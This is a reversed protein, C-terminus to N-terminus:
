KYSQQKIVNVAWNLHEDKPQKQCYFWQYLLEDRQCLLRHVTELQEYSLAHISDQYFKDLLLDLEYMGRRCRWGIRSIMTQRDERM